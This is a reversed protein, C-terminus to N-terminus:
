KLLFGPQLRGTSNLDLSIAKAMQGGALLLTATSATAKPLRMTVIALNRGFLINGRIVWRWRRYRRFSSPVTSQLSRDESEIEVRSYFPYEQYV